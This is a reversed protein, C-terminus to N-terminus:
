KFHSLLTGVLEGIRSDGAPVMGQLCVILDRNDKTHFVVLQDKGPSVLFFPRHSNFCCEYLCVAPWRASILEAM